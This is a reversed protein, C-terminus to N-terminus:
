SNRWNLENCWWIKNGEDYVCLVANGQTLSATKNTNGASILADGEDYQPPALKDSGSCTYYVRGTDGAGAGCKRILYVQGDECGSPLTITKTSSGICLIISDMKTLTTSVSLRRVRLRFGCVNGAEIYLAHAGSTVDDDVRKSGRVNFYAGIAMGPLTIDSNYVDAGFVADVGAVEPIAANGFGGKQTLGNQSRTYIYSGPAFLVESGDESNTGRMMDSEIVFGGIDGSDASIKGSIDANKAELKDTIITGDQYIRTAAQKIAPEGFGNSGSFFMLKGHSVDKGLPSGNLGATAKDSPDNVGVINTLISGGSVTTSGESFISRLYEYGSLTEKTTSVDKSMDIWAQINELGTSGKTFTVPGTVSGNALDIVLSGSSSKIIDTTIQGPLVETFGHLRAFSRSGDIASSLIGILLYLYGSEEDITHASRSIVYEGTRDSESAVAKNYDVVKAYVYYPYKNSDDNLEVRYESMHWIYYDSATRAGPATIDFIGKTTHQLYSERCLLEKLNDNFAIPYPTAVTIDNFNKVFIFQLNESGVLMAMTQVSVPTIGESFGEIADELLSLTEKAQLFSIKSYSTSLGSSEIADYAGATARKATGGVITIKSSLNNISNTVSEKFSVGKKERLTVKYTPISEASEDITLTDILVYESGVGIIDEDSVRMYMGEKLIRGSVAMLKADIEPEYYDQGKSVEEYKSEALSYLRESAVSVYIEPMMIDLIVFRDSAEIPYDVNPFYRNLGEDKARKLTLYWDDTDERYRCSNVTFDRGGCMGTKMSITALGNGTSQRKRIDFGIQKLVISFDSDFDRRIGLFPNQSKVIWSIRSSLYTDSKSDDKYTVKVSLYLKSPFENENFGGDIFMTATPAALEVRRSVIKTNDNTDYENEISYLNKSISIPLYQGNKCMMYLYMECESAEIPLHLIITADSIISVQKKEDRTTVADGADACIIDFSRPDSPKEGTINLPLFNLTAEYVEGADSYMGNDKPNVASKVEDLRESADPYVSTSPVYSADKASGKADRLEGITFNEITPYIDENNDSGDFYIRKPILGYKSIPGPKEIYAKRADPLMEGSESATKGWANIPLMLNAIDVSDANYIKKNNYYRNTLNKESGYVYLRTALSDENINSKKIASLGNGKGYLFPSTTNEDSRVNPLGITIVDKGTTTDYSHVWGIGDWTNYINTLADLCSGTISFEKAEHLLSYLEPSSDETIGDMVKIRWQGPYIEDVCEQIRTVIGFVDEYTSLNDRTSFHIRNDTKVLDHFIARELMKTAAHFQVNEYAFANGAAGRRAQKKPQPLSYLKYRLGTRDYDVYDGVEWTIPIPSSIEKFEIYSVKLYAGSYQPNGCYKKKGGNKSFIDYKAM